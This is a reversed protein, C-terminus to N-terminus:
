GGIWSPGESKISDAFSDVEEDTMTDFAEPDSKILQDLIRRKNQSENSFPRIPKPPPDFRTSEWCASVANCLARAFGFGKDPAGDGTTWSACEVGLRECRTHIRLGKRQILRSVLLIAGSEDYFENEKVWVNYKQYATAMDNLADKETPSHMAENGWVEFKKINKVKAMSIVSLYKASQVIFADPSPHPLEMEGFAWFVATRANWLGYVIYTKLSKDVWISCILSSHETMNDFDVKFPSTIDSTVTPIVRPAPATSVAYRRASMGHDWDDIPKDTFKGDKDKEWRYNRQEKISELSDKTWAQKFQNVKQIGANVSDPGKTCPRIDYGYAKIEDISKPEASDAIIIDYGKRIGLQEFRKAIQDNTMGKEYFLQRSFIEDGVIRNQIFASPDMSYGFDLGYIERDFKEPLEDVQRFNAHILGEIKGVLGLGYVRWWNPDRDKRSVINNIVSEELVHLADLFTSHIHAVHPRGIEEHAWFESVPNFDIITLIRTRVDLEDFAERTVNNAENIFLIHRRGGRLKSASDAAFFEIKTGSAFEYTSETKNWRDEDFRDAMVNKFDLITGRRLHPHSESVVSILLKEKSHEAVFILFQITSITKSSSTGGENIILRKGALYAKVIEDFVRTTELHM